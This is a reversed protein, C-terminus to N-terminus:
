NRIKEGFFYILIGLAFFRAARGIVSAIMFTSFSSASAGAAITFVKYPIPTVAAVLVAIFSNDRFIQRLNEFQEEAHYFAIIPKGVSEWLAVGIYYGLIGGAVSAITTILAYYLAKKRRSVSLAILLVDPPVPFFSSEAFSNIVLVIAGYPTYAWHLVWDYLKRMFKM